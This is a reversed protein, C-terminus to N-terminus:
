KEMAFKLLLLADATKLTVKCRPFLRGAVDRLKTKWKAKTLEGRVGVGLPKQWTSPIVLTVPYELAALVGLIFGYSRGFKFMASGPQPMGVFGGVQEVYVKDPAIEKILSVIEYETDPMPECLISGEDDRWALGGSAGPDVALIIEM